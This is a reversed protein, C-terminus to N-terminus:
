AAALPAATDSGPDSLEFDLDRWLAFAAIRRIAFPDLNCRRLLQSKRGGLRDFVEEVASRVLALRRRPM